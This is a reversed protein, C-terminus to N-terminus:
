RNQQFTAVLRRNEKTATHEYKATYDNAQIINQKVKTQKKTEKNRQKKKNRKKQKNHINRKNVCVRVRRYVYTNEITIFAYYFFLKKM